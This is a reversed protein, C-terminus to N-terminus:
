VPPAVSLGLPSAAFFCEWRELNVGPETWFSSDSESSWYSSAHVERHGAADLFADLGECISTAKVRMTRRWVSEARAAAASM